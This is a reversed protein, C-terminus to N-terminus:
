ENKIGKTKLEFGEDNFKVFGHRVLHQLIMLAEHLALIDTGDLKCSLIEGFFISRETKQILHYIKEENLYNM